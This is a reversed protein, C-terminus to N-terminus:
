WSIYRQILLTNKFRSCYSNFKESIKPDPDIISIRSKGFIKSNLYEALAEKDRNKSFAALLAIGWAGGEGATETVAVPTNFASAAIKQGTHSTKFYGGHGTLREIVINEKEFLIDMGMKITAIATYLLSVALDSFHFNSGPRRIMLPVGNELGIIPEGSYYNHTIISETDASKTDATKFIKDLVDSRSCKVGFCDIAECLMDAWANIDSTCNNCHVMAVPLGSPTTVADIEKYVGSLEKNLVTMTFVSTGASINGTNPLVSNTAVMGTGADGEPPCLLSGPKLKGSPDLMLAGEETLRGADEGASLIEPLIDKINWSYGKKEILANFKDLMAANYSSGSSDIPFMGSADGVGLVRRGTLRRHVYGALTTLFSIDKVHDECNLIAQYLHAISWRQPINFNFLETLESAAQKTNTNKWTRFPVLLNGNGDFPLYGHMMASIGISGIETIYAGYKKYANDALSKYCERMGKHVLELPYTWLGEFLTSEWEFEGSALPTGDYSILVGKIRTSGFEIGLATKGEKIATRRDTLNM